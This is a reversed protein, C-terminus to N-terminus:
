PSTSPNENNGVIIVFDANYTAQVIGPSSTMATTKLRQELYRKTYKKIGATFDILQTSPYDTTPANDVLTVNYGYSKLEDARKTGLGAIGTGNLIAVSANESKLFGDRLSNRVFSQIESFDNVGRRPVVVSQGGINDTKVLVNPPDTFGLSAISTSPIDKTIDYLRSMEKLSLNTTVNNGIADILKSIALPNSFTGLQTVKEKLAVAIDRQRQGRAFDSSTYRSRAYLLAKKGEMHQQGAAAILPNNNNEWAVQGDYLAEPVNIDIGGVADVAQKFATFDVMIYYNMPIGIDEKIIGSLLEVGAKEAADSDSENAAIARQKGTSYVANIKMSWYDPVKVWLDRPVSLLSAEKALPDVSAILVSDTLDGGPHNEGGKGLILINVRGDGEGNLLEPKVESNLALAGSSGGKLVNRSAL